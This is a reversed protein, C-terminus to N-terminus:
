KKKSHDLRSLINQAATKAEVVYKSQEKAIEQLEQISKSKFQTEFSKIQHKKLDDIKSVEEQTLKKEPFIENFITKNLIVHMLLLVFCLPNIKIFIFRLSFEIYFIDIVQITGLLLILFFSLVFWKQSFFYMIVALLVLTFGIYLKIDLVYNTFFTIVTSYTVLFISIALPITKWNIIKLM